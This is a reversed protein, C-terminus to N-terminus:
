IVFLFLSYHSFLLRVVTFLQDSKNKDMLYLNSECMISEKYAIRCEIHCLVGNRKDGGIKRTNTVRDAIKM